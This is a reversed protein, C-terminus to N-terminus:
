HRFHRTGTLVMAINYEEAAAIVEEDRVSGGPQVVATIGYKAGADLGDRFPFFADSAMVAGKLIKPDKFADEAKIAAIRASDIRSMQGAGIGLTQTGKAFVITNSKVHKAVKWAFELSRWEDETPKRKTVVKSARVDVSKADKDQVLIGGSVCRIELSAKSHPENTKHHFNELTLLRLNKKTKFIEFAEADYEPAIIVEFFTESMILATKADVKRNLAVIGGFSSVPDCSRANVFAESLREATAVGCPNNHKVIVCATNSFELCCNYAAESDLINNYSLEKGQIQKASSIGELPQDAYRYFAAQQHPNEGYRLDQLKTFSFNLRSPFNNDTPATSTKSHLYAAIAADYAATTQFVKVALEFRTADSVSGTTRIEEIIKSYDLPDIVVAVDHHNKAASRLMAPGGIDINEIADELTTGEKSITKEFAYLNVVVLDIPLIDHKDMQARHELNNRIGLIGGHVKPHLTKVRGDLMEPFGTHESVDKVRVGSERLLKATGGTSLIEVGREDLFKAFDVIGTKDTLSILARQIKSM